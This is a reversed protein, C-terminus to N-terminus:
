PVIQYVEFAPQHAVLVFHPNPHDRLAQPYLGDQEAIVLYEAGYRRACAYAVDPTQAAPLEITPIGSAYYLSTSETAMVVGADRARLWRTIDGFIRRENRAGAGIAPFAFLLLALQLLAVMAFLAPALSLRLPLHRRAWGGALYILALYGWALFPAVSAVSHYYGGFLSVAPFLAAFGVLLALFSALGLAALRVRRALLWLGILAPLATPYFLYDTTRHWADWFAQARLALLAGWGHRLLSALTPGTGYDFFDALSFALANHTAEASFLHGFVMQQRVLWPATVVMAGVAFALGAGALARRAAGDPARIRWCRWLWWGVLVPALFIASGRTLYTLGFLAGALAARPTAGQWGWARGWFSPATAAPRLAQDWAVIAAFGLLGYPMSSDGMVSQYTLASSIALLLAAGLALWHAAGLALWHAARAREAPHGEADGEADRAALWRAFVDRGWWYTLAVLAAGALIGPILAAYLSDGFVLLSLWEVISPLPGWYNNSPGVVTAPPPQYNWINGITFGRGAYLSRAVAIYYAADGLPPFVMQTALAGRVAAAGGFLLWAVGRPTTLWGSVRGLLRPATRTSVGRQTAVPASAM